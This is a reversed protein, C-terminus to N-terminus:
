KNDQHITIIAGRWRRGQIKVLASKDERRTEEGRKPDRKRGRHIYIEETSNNMRPPKAENERRSRVRERKTNRDTELKAHQRVEDRRRRKKRDKAITEM